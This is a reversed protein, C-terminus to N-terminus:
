RGCFQLVGTGGMNFKGQVFQIRLKNKKDLSLLTVPMSRPTQGEGADSITFCPNAGGDSAARAGSAVLTILRSVETRRPDGWNEIHGLTESRSANGAFYLAVAEHISRPAGPNEPSIGTLWCENMLVADVANVVKEVLAAEPRSQQNGIVSFNDERDGYYRWLTPDGWLGTSQLIQIVEAETDAQLLSLCLEKLEENNM